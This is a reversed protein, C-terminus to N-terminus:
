SVTLISDLNITLTHDQTGFNTIALDFALTANRSSGTFTLPTNDDLTQVASLTLQNVNVNDVHPAVVAANIGRGSVFTTSAAKIGAASDVNVIASGSVAGNVLTTVDQLTVANLLYGTAAEDIGLLEFECGSILKSTESGGYTFTISADDAMGGDGAANQTVDVVITNASPDVSVIRPSGTVGTGTMTMGPVLNTVDDFAVTASATQDGNKIKVISSRIDLPHMSAVNAGYGRAFTFSNALLSLDYSFSRVLRKTSNREGTMTITAPPFSSYSGSYLTSALVVSITILKYQNITLTYLNENTSDQISSNLTTGKSLTPTLEVTYTDDVSINPFTIFGIFEGTADIEQDTLETVSATFTNTTFDYTTDSGSPNDKTIKLSFKATADGKVIFNRTTGNSAIDSTDLEFSKIEILNNNHVNTTAPLAKTAHSFIITDGFSNVTNTYKIVFVKSTIRNNSDRTITEAINYASSYATRINYKPEKFYYYGSSATFTITAVTAEVGSDPTLIYNTNSAYNTTTTSATVGAGASISVIHNADVTVTSNLNISLAM